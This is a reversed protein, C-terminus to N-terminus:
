ERPPEYLISTSVIRVAKGENGEAYHAVAEDQAADVSQAAVVMAPQVVNDVTCRLEAIVQDTVIM